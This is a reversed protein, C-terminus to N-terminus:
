SYKKLWYNLVFAVGREGIMISPANTNGRPACPMISSDIVRLGSVGYVRLQPDVVAKKDWKPGMKCTGVPHYTSTTYSRALYVIYDDTGWIYNKCAKLPKKVFYAGLRKFAKTNELTLLFKVGKVLPILDTPDDFYNAYLLPAGRPNKPNLLLKGRSKPVLNMTRPLLANYFASPFITLSEYLTPQRIYEQWTVSDVQFQVDPAPLAAETRIFAISNTPGNAALPGRKRRSLKYAFLEKLLQDNSVKTSTANPLAVIIGNFTVHDHLNEGVALDKVVEIGLEDLHYKPGIGSLMLLKPSNIAGASIIVEKKAYATHWKCNRKYVVGYAQKNENILIKHVEANTRVLLNPRRDRVPEIFARNTSVRQGGCSFTQSQMTSLQNEGNFDGIPVGRENFAETMMISPRDVYPYRSVYQEGGVGHYERNLGAINLNKESKIFYPLVEKYSWGTNGNAAWTDYDLENGRVYALSNISSSGGMTKGRPWSCRQGPRALCSKGNPETQYAWDVSSQLLSIALSPVTTVLPQEDGAELLLVKWNGVASLRNAVVCGASGAGVVIFDFEREEETEPPRRKGSTQGFLRVLLDLYVYGFSSCATLNTSGPCAQDLNIPQWVM